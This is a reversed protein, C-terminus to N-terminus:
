SVQKVFTFTACPELTGEYVISAECKDDRGGSFTCTLGLRNDEPPLVVLMRSAFNYYGKVAVVDEGAQTKTEYKFKLNGRIDLRAQFSM